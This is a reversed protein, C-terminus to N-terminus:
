LEEMPMQLLHLKMQWIKIVLKLEKEILIYNEKTNKLYDMTISPNINSIMMKLVEKM